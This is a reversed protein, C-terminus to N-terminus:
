DRTRAAELANELSTADEASLSVSMAQERAAAPDAALTLTVAGADTGGNRPAAVTLSGEHDSRQKGDQVTVGRAALDLLVTQLHSSAM